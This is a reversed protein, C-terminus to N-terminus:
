GNAKEIVPLVIAEKCTRAKRMARLREFLGVHPVVPHEKQKRAPSRLTEYYAIRARATMFTLSDM